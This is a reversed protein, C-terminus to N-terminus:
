FEDSICTTCASSCAGQAAELFFFPGDSLGLLLLPIGKLIYTAPCGLLLPIELPPLPPERSLDGKMCHVCSPVRHIRAASLTIASPPISSVTHHPPNQRCKPHHSFSLHLSQTIYVSLLFPFGLAETVFLFPVSGVAASSLEGRSIFIRRLSALVSAFGM